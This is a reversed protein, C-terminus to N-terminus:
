GREPRDVVADHVPRVLERRAATLLLTCASDREPDFAPAVHWIRLYVREAAQDASEAGLVARLLGLVLPATRDYLAGLACLDRQGAAALLAAVEAEDLGTRVRPPPRRTPAARRPDGPRPDGPHRTM